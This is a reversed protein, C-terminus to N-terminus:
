DFGAKPLRVNPRKVERIFAKRAHDVSKFGSLSKEIVSDIPLFRFSGSRSYYIGIDTFKFGDKKEDYLLAYGVIQRLQALTLPRITTKIDTLILRNDYEIVCDFDAGGVLGSNGLARNFVAFRADFLESERSKTATEFMRVLESVDQAYLEGGLIEFYEDFM